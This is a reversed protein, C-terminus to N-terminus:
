LSDEPNEKEMEEMFYNLDSFNFNSIPKSASPKKFGYDMGEGFDDEEEREPSKAEEVQKFM